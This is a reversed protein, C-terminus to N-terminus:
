VPVEVQDVLDGIISEAEQTKELPSTHRPSVRVRHSFVPVALRKVDDPICYPRGQFYALAQAARYLFM